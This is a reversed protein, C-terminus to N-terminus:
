PVMSRTVPNSGAVGVQFSPMNGSCWVRKASVLLISSGHGAQCAPMIVM